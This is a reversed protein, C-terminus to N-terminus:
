AKKRQAHADRTGLAFLVEFVMGIVLAIAAPVLQGALFLAVAAVIAVTGLALSAWRNM